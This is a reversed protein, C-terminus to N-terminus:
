LTQLLHCPAICSKLSQEIEKWLTAGRYSISKELIQVSDKTLIIKTELSDPKTLIFM